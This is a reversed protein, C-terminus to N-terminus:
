AQQGTPAAARGPVLQATGAIALKSFLRGSFGFLVAFGLALVTSPHNWSNDRFVEGLVNIKEDSLLRVLLLGGFATLAGGVPSLVMVGWSSAKQGTSIRVLPALFGGIAGMLLTIQHEKSALGLAVIGFLGVISLWLAVRQGEFEQALLDEKQAHVLQHAHGIILRKGCDDTALAFQGRLARAAEPDVRDLELLVLAAYDGLVGEPVLEVLRRGAANLALTDAYLKTLPSDVVWFLRRWRKLKTVQMRKLVDLVAEKAAAATASAESRQLYVSIDAGCREAQSALMRRRPAAIFGRSTIVSIALYCLCAIILRAVQWVGVSNMAVGGHSVM